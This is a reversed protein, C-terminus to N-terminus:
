HGRPSRKRWCHSSCNRSNPEGGFYHENCFHLCIRMLLNFRQNVVFQTGSFDASSISDFCTRETFCTSSGSAAEPSGSEHNLSSRGLSVFHGHFNKRLRSFGRGTTLNTSSRFKASFASVVLQCRHWCTRRAPYTLASWDSCSGACSM